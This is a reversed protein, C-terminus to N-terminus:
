MSPHLWVLLNLKTVWPSQALIRCPLLFKGTARLNRAVRKLPPGPEDKEMAAKLTEQHAAQPSSSGM